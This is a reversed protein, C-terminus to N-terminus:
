YDTYGEAGPTYFTAFDPAVLEQGSKLKAVLDLNSIFPRGFAVLDGRQADLDADARAVDYGGSLIYQGDFSARLKAKLAPSVEPAGMASHDVIHIYLLGLANLEEILRLYVEDMEADPLQANFVGYPSIRMGVREAGIAAVTARAVEVAFRIRNEVAGGWRDHRQNSATNLFQDILYGNAAHLEVGDFGAAIALKASAAYEAISHAIDAESMERPVPHPQMGDSDTWMEGPVAVASPALVSAGAPMNAPHSVRGTHMLQVFIRGGAQHVGDTVRRWGQVQEANFLGPIRAYGLGNPSPSTGETIILGAEARLRYYQEMLENPLNGLARSRTLPAMVIRNKLSLSGLQSPTFLPSSM